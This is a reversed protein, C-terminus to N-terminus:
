QFKKMITVPIQIETLWEGDSDKNWIGDIYSERPNDIVEYNNERIWNFAFIYADRLSSYPGKHLVCVATDIKALKKFKLIKTDEKMKTVSECIEVDIDKEKYEGDHYISFCYEPIKCECGIREMDPGMVNPCINFYEDYSKIVQRMSAVICEPIERIIPTYKDFYKGNIIGYYSELKKLKITNEIIEDNVIKVQDDIYKEIKNNDSLIDKIKDLSLGIQKLAIIKHIKPLDESSYYRYGSSDDVKSPKLIGIQDYYRLTKTTVKNIKSFIGISYYM